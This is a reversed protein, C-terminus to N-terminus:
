RVLRGKVEQIILVYFSVALVQALLLRHARSWESRSIQQPPAYVPVVRVRRVPQREQMDDALELRIEM